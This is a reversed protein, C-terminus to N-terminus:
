LIVFNYEGQCDNCDCHEIDSNNSYNDKLLQTIKELKEFDIEYDDGSKTNKNIDNDDDDDDDDDDQENLLSSIDDNEDNSNHDTDANTLKKLYNFMKIMEPMTLYKCKSKCKYIKNEFENDDDTNTDSDTNIDIKPINSPEILQAERKIRKNLTQDFSVKNNNNNFNYNKFSYYLRMEKNNTTPKLTENVGISHLFDNLNCKNNLIANRENVDNSHHKSTSTPSNLIVNEATTTTEILLDNKLINLDSIVLVLGNHIRNVEYYDLRILSGKCLRGDEILYNLTPLLLCTSEYYEGDSLILLYRHTFSSSLTNSKCQQNNVNVNNDGSFPSYQKNGLNVNAINQINLVQVIPCKKFPENNNNLYSNMILELVGSDLKYKPTEKNNNNNNSTNTTITSMIEIKITDKRKTSDIDKCFFVVFFIL